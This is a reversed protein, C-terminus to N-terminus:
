WEKLILDHSEKDMKENLIKESVGGYDPFQSPPSETSPTVWDGNHWLKLPTFYQEWRITIFPM